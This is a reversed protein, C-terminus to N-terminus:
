EGLSEFYVALAAIEENSLRGATMQMVPHERHKEKYAHMATVFDDTAWGVIAPIGDNEGDAQHCTTCESALYEGYEADGEIGLIESAVVFEDSEVADVEAGTSFTALYAILDARQEAKKVGAFSMKTGKAFDRPKTLFADLNEATWTEGADRLTRFAKSYKFDANAGIKAGVIDNLHPGVKNKADAGIAHCAKCKRFQKAGKEADGSASAAAGTLFVSVAVLQSFLKNRMSRNM